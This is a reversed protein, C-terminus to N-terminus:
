SDIIQKVSLDVRRPRVFSAQDFGFNFELVYIAEIVIYTNVVAEPNHEGNSM